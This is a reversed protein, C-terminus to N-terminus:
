KKEPLIVTVRGTKQRLSINRGRRKTEDDDANKEAAKAAETAHDDAAATEARAVNSAPAGVAAASSDGSASVSKSILAASVADASVAVSGGGVVTGAVTGAASISVGGAAVATVSVSKESTIDINQSGIVVGSINGGANLRLNAGIIGSGSANIDQGARLDIFNDRTVADNFALQVIGGLNANINGNPAAVTINGLAAAGGALTTALIGSGPITAPIERLAGSVPDLELARVSVYGAGGSGANVDGHESRVTINGGDYTAIRSGNVNVDGVATVVLNGGSVTFIGKPASPDGFASLQGGVNLTGGVNVNLDGRWGENSIRTSTLDLDGAVTVDLEAGLPSIPLLAATPALASIGGSIGLDLDHATILFKGSGALALGQDGLSASESADHLQQLTTRQAASLSVPAVVQNGNADLVPQAYQDFVLAQPNLLFSLESQTMQGVFTLTHNVPDYRLKLVLQPDPSLTPDSLSPPLPGALPVSTLDGRYRIDGAVQISTVATPALNQGLFGFNYTDGGVNIVAATPVALAFNEISGSVDVHVVQPDNLHLPTVAHGQVFTTYDPLGSDSMTIGTLSSSQPQGILYGGDRTTIRLSGEASPYLALSNLVQIGGAGANLSLRPPYVPPLNQNQGSLRPLNSGSLTIADGAWFNAAADPAYDFLFATRTPPAVTVAGDINGPFAGVPVPLRNPNFTGNPNRVESIFIDHAAWVNWVGSVLSLSVPRTASGVDAGPELIQTVQGNEVAVGALINGVGNRVLFNGLIQNGAVLSVNGPEPGYAGSAGPPQNAGVTPVSIIDNGAQITVDGGAATAIGGLGALSIRYGGLYFDYGDNKKGADVDGSLATIQIRGGGVTRIFGAGVLVSGGAKLDIAGGATELSGNFNLGAGGNLFINGVGTQVAGSSFDVGALMQISWQNADSIRANNGFIIDNGAQLRLAGTNLGTSQSLNWATGPALTIDHTAQITIESFNKNLFATNVNLQLVGAGDGASISGSGADGAGSVGLVVDTPDLLLRGAPSGAPGSADMRSDLALLRSASIEVDGGGTVIQGGVSDQFTGGSRITVGGGRGGNNADARTLIASQPGLRVEDAGILEIVGDQARVTDAQLVGNQNVVSASLAIAGADAVIRGDNNVSGTPLRVTASLGRGDPRESLLVDQGAHLGVSGAPATLEGHNEIQEAILFLSRGAGAQIAGYNVISALPPLGSFQWSASASLDPAIPATTAVFNGGVQIMSNPGFYFGRANALVVAGNANLTGWIRSPGADSIRNFVIADASPQIFTTTEGPQINFGRWDLFAGASATVNLQLGQAQVSAAGRTVTLGEPNAWLNLGRLSPLLGVVLFWARRTTRGLM